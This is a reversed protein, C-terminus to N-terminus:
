ADNIVVEVAQVLSANTAMGTRAVDVWDDCISTPYSAVLLRVLAASGASNFAQTNPLPLAMLKASEVAGVSRTKRECGTTRGPRECITAQQGGVVM